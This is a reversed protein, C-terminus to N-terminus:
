KIFLQFSKNHGSISVLEASILVKDAPRATSTPFLAIFYPGVNAAVMIENIGSKIMYIKQWLYKTSPIAVPAVFSYFHLFAQNSFSSLLWGILFMLRDM